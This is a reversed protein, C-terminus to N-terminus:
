ITSNSGRRICSGRGIRGCKVTAETAPMRDSTPQRTEDAEANAMGAAIWRRRRPTPRDDDARLTGDLPGFRPRSTHVHLYWEPGISTPPGRLTITRQSTLLRLRSADDGCGPVSPSRNVGCLSARGAAGDHEWRRRSGCTCSRLHLWRIPVRSRIPESPIRVRVLHRQVIQRRRVPPEVPIAKGGKITLRM